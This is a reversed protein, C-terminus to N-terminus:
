NCNFRDKIFHVNKFVIVLVKIATLQMKKM